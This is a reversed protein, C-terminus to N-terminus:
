SFEGRKIIQRLLDANGLRKTLPDTIQLKKGDIWRITARDSSMAERIIAIDLATRRDKSPGASINHLHDFACKCDTVITLPFNLSYAPATRATLGTKTTQSFMTRLYSANALGEDIGMTEAALSSPVKRALKHSRWALMTVPAWSPSQILKLDAALM